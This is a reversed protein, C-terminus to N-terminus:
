GNHDSRISPLASSAFLINEDSVVALSADHEDASVGYIIM